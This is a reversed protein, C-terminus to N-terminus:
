SVSGITNMYCVGWSELVKPNPTLFKKGDVRWRGSTGPKEIQKGAYEVEPPRLLRANTEIMKANIQLGYKNLYMDNGWDLLKIGGEIGQRRVNPRTVAFKIM